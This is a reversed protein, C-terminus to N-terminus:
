QFIYDFYVNSGNGISLDSPLHQRISIFHKLCVLFDIKSFLIQFSM